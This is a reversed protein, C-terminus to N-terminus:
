LSATGLSLTRIATTLRRKAAASSSVTSFCVKCRWNSWNSLTLRARRGIMRPSFIFDKTSEQGPGLWWWMSSRASRKQQETPWCHHDNPLLGLCVGFVSAGCNSDIPWLVYGHSINRDEPSPMSIKSSMSPNRQSKLIFEHQIFEVHHSVETFKAQEIRANILCNILDARFSKMEIILRKSQFGLGLFLFCVTDVKTITEKKTRVIFYMELINKWVFLTILFSADMNKTAKTVQM